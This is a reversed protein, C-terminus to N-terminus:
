FGKRLLNPLVPRRVSPASANSQTQSGPQPPPQSQPQPVSSSRNHRRNNFMAKVNSLHKAQDRSMFSQQDSDWPVSMNTDDRMLRPPALPPNFMPPVRFHQQQVPNQGGQCSPILPFHLGGRKVEM